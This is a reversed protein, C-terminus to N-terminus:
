GIVDPSAGSATTSLVEGDQTIAPPAPFKPKTPDVLVWASLQVLYDSWAQKQTETPALEFKEQAVKKIGEYVALVGETIQELKQAKEEQTMERVTWVDKVVGDVWAYHVEDVEFTTANEPSPLREFRAFEPPLNNVDTHPFAERFNDGLIPHEFPQGDKIQIYLEM